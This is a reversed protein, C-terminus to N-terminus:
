ANVVKVHLGNLSEGALKRLVMLGDFRNGNRNSSVILERLTSKSNRERCACALELAGEYGMQISRIDLERLVRGAGRKIIRKAICRTGAQGLPNRALDLVRISAIRVAEVLSRVGGRKIENDEICLKELANKGRDSVFEALAKAGKDGMHCGCMCIRSVSRPLSSVVACCGEPGLLNKWLDLSSLMHANNALWRALAKAGDELIANDNMDLVTVGGAGRFLAEALATTGENGAANGGIRLATATMLSPRAMKAVGRPGLGCRTVDLNTLRAKSDSLAKGLAVGVDEGLPNHSLDLEVLSPNAALLRAIQMGGTETLGAGSLDLHKIVGVNGRQASYSKLMGDVIDAVGQDGVQSERLDLVELPSRLKSFAQGGLRGIDEHSLELIRLGRLGPLGKALEIVGQDGLCRASIRLEKITRRLMEM